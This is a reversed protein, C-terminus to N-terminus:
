AKTDADALTLIRQLIPFSNTAGSGPMEEWLYTGEQDRAVIVIQPSPRSSVVETPDGIVGQANDAFYRM